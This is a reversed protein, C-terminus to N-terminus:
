TLPAVDCSTINFIAPGIANYTAFLTSVLLDQGLRTEVCTRLLIYKVCHDTRLHMYIGPAPLGEVAERGSLNLNWSIHMSDWSICVHQVLALGPSHGDFVLVCCKMM